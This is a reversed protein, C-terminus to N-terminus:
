WSRPPPLAVPDRPCGAVPRRHAGVPGGEDGRGVARCAAFEALAGADQEGRECLRLTEHRQGFRGRVPRDGDSAAAHGPRDPQGNAPPDGPVAPDQGRGPLYDGLRPVARGAPGAPGAAAVAERPPLVFLTIQKINGFVESGLDVGTASRIKDSAVQAQPTGAEGLTASFLAVADAPVVQLANKNLGPSHILGYVVSQYGPKFGINAELAVGTERLSLTVIVDAINKLDVMGDITQLQPPIQGAPMMQLVRAYAEPVNLWLTLLTRSGPRNASGPFLSTPRPWPPSRRNARTSGSRGNSCTRARPPRPSWFSWRITSPRRPRRRRLHRLGHRGRGRGEHRLQDPGHRLLGKLADSKGPFVVGIASPTGQGIDQVGVGIGRVKQLEALMSPNLLANIMQVPNQGGGANQAGGKMGIVDFPNELPTGKLMSLITAVQQGPSGIEVYAITEPPMLSAPDADGLGELIPKAKEVIETQDPYESVLKQFVERAQAENRKKM